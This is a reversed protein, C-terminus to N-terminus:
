EKRTQRIEKLLHEATKLNRHNQTKLREVLLPVEAPDAGAALALSKIQLDMHGKQIGETVLARLAALNQALGVSVIISELQKADPFQLIKHALQAHPHIRISGGVTGVPLPLTLTGKLFGNKDKTWRTLSRYQGTRAAFAHGGAEIARWDNGTALVVADIGNFIGKNHTAARYPDAWAVQGAEIIRDRVDEGTWNKTRLFRPDILCEASALCETAFNSLIGMLLQGKTLQEIVPAVAEMMTNVMNAGMAEKTDIFFHIMFFSPSNEQPDAEIFRVELRKAGGGREVISPHAANAMQLLLDQSELIKKEAAAFDPVEKLIVQGIMERASITTRFGGSREVIKAAFSAAAIVSPEEIAMPVTYHIGNVLFYFALGMPLTYTAIQNEVMHDATQRPLTLSDNKLQEAEEVTLLGAQTLIDMRQHFHKKHFGSFLSTDM